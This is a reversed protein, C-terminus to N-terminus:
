YYRTLINKDNFIRELVEGAKQILPYVIIILMSNFLVEIGLIKIFPVIDISLKFIVIQILYSIVECIITVGASILMM